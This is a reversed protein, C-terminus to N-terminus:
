RTRHRPEVPEAPVHEGAGSQQGDGVPGGVRGPAGFRGRAPVKHLAGFGPVGPRPLAEAKKLARFGTMARRIPETRGTPPGYHGGQRCEVVLWGHPGRPQGGRPTSRATSSRVNVRCSESARLPTWRDLGIRERSTGPWSCGDAGATSISGNSRVTLAAAGRRAGPAIVM